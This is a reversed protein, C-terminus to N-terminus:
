LRMIGQRDRSIERIVDATGACKVIFAPEKQIMGNWLAKAESYGTDEKTLVAGQIGKKFTDLVNQDMVFFDGNLTKARIQSM